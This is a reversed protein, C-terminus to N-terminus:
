DEESALKEKWNEILAQDLLTQAADALDASRAWPM